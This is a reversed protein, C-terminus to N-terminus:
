ENDILRVKKGTNDEFIIDPSAHVAGVEFITYGDKEYELLPETMVVFEKGGILYGIGPEYYVTEGVKPATGSESAVAIREFPPVFGGVTSHIKYTAM